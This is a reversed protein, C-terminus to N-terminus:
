LVSKMNKCVKDYKIIDFIFNAISEKDFLM